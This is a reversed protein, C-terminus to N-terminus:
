KEAIKWDNIFDTFPNWASLNASPLFFNWNDSNYFCKFYNLIRSRSIGFKHFAFLSCCMRHFLWVFPLKSFLLTLSAMLLFLLTQFYCIVLKWVVYFFLNRQSKHSIFCLRSISNNLFDAKSRWKRNIKSNM